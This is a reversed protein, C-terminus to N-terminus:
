SSPLDYRRDPLRRLGVTFAEATDDYLRSVTWFFGHELVYPGPLLEGTRGEHSISRTWINGLTSLVNRADVSLYDRELSEAGNLIIGSLFSTSFVDDEMADNIFSQIWDKSLIM